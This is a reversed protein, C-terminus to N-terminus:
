KILLQINKKLLIKNGAKSHAIIHMEAEPQIVLKYSM